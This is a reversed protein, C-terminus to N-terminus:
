NIEIFITTLGENENGQMDIWNPAKSDFGMAIRNEYISQTLTFCKCRLGFYSSKTSLRTLQKLNYLENTELSYFQIYLKNTKSAFATDVRDLTLIGHPNELYCTAYTSQNKNLEALKVYSSIDMINDSGRTLRNLSHNTGYDNGWYIYDKTFAFNLVRGVQSAWVTGDHFKTWTDGNDTSYWWTCSLDQDGTTCYWINTYPDRQITHIHWVKGEESATYASTREMTKVINWNSAETYPYTVKWINVTTYADTPGMGTYEGFIFFENGESDIGFDCGCNQLWGCPNRSLTSIKTETSTSPSYIYPMDRIESTLFIIDGHTPSVAVLKGNPNFSLDCIHTPNDLNNPSYYLKKNSSDLHSAHYLYGIPVSPRGHVIKNKIACLTYDEGADTITNTIKGLSTIKINFDNSNSNSFVKKYYGVNDSETTEIATNSVNALVVRITCDADVTYDSTLWDTYTVIDENYFIIM